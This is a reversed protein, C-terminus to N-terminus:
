VTCLVCEMIVTGLYVLIKDDVAILGFGAITGTHQLHRILSDAPFADRFYKGPVINDIKGKTKSYQSSGTKKRRFRPDSYRHSLIVRNKRRKEM